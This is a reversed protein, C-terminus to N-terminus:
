ETWAEGKVKVVDVHLWQPIHRKLAKLYESPSAASEMDWRWTQAELPSKECRQILREIAAAGHLEQGGGERMSLHVGGYKDNRCERLSIFLAADVDEYLVSRESKLDEVTRYVIINVGSIM